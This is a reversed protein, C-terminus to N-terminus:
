PQMKLLVLTHIDLQNVINFADINFLCLAITAITLAFHLLILLPIVITEIYM